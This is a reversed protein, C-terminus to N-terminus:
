DDSKMQDQGRAMELLLQEAMTQAYGDQEPRYDFQDSHWRGEFLVKVGLKRAGGIKYEGTYTRGEWEGRVSQAPATSSM